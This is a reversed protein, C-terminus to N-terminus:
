RKLAQRLNRNEGYINMRLQCKLNLFFQLSFFHVAVKALGENYFTSKDIEANM